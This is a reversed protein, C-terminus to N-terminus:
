PSLDVMNPSYVSAAPLVSRMEASPSVTTGSREKRIKKPRAEDSFGADTDTWSIQKRVGKKRKELERTEEIRCFCTAANACWRACVGLITKM